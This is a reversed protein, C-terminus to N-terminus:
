APKRPSLTPTTSESGSSPPCIVAIYGSFAIRSTAPKGVILPRSRTSPRTACAAVASGCYKRSRVAWVRAWPSSLTTTPSSSPVSIV